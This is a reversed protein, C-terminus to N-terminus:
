LGLFSEPAKLHVSLPKVALKRDMHRLDKTDPNHSLSSWIGIFLELVKIINEHRAKGSDVRHDIM